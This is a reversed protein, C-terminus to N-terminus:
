PRKGRSPRGPADWSTPTQARRGRGQPSTPLGRTQPFKRRSPCLSAQAGVASGRSALAQPSPPHHWPVQGLRPFPEARASLPQWPGHTPNRPCQVEDPPKYPIPDRHLPNGRPIQISSSGTYNLPEHRLPPQIVHSNPTPAARIFPLPISPLEGHAGRTQPVRNQLTIPSPIPLIQPPILRSHSGPTM